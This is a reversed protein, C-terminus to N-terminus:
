CQWWHFVRDVSGDTLVCEVSGGTMVCDVSGDTLYVTLVAM